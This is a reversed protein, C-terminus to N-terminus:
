ADLIARDIDGEDFSLYAITSNINSHGMATKMRFLDHGLKDYVRKAYSKRMSHTGLKGTMGVKRYAAMLIMYARIRSIPKDSGPRSQFIFASGDAGAGLLQQVLPELARRAGAHLPVQRGAAKTKMFQRRVLVQEAVIGAPAVDKLRISLLESIRFGTRIGLIFMARDRVAHRGSFSASVAAIESDTLPRSGKM